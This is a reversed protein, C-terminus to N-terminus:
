DATKILFKWFLAFGRTSDVIEQSLKYLRVILFWIFRMVITKYASKLVFVMTRVRKEFCIEFCFRYQRVCM